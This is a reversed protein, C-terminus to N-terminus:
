AARLAGEIHRHPVGLHPVLEATRDAAELRDLV